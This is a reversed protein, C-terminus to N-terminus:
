GQVLMVRGGFAEDAAGQAFRPVAELDQEALHRAADALRQDLSM